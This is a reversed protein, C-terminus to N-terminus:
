PENLSRVREGRPHSYTSVAHSEPSSSSVYNEAWVAECLGGESEAM